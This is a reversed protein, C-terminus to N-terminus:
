LDFDGAAEPQYLIALVELKRIGAPVEWEITDGVRYGLMGTGIPALISIRGENIDADQPFVLSLETEEHTELDKLRVKSNMTIIDEPIDKSDVVAAKGLEEELDNLYAVTGGQSRKETILKKLRELDFGTIFIERETM